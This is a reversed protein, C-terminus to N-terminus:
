FESGNKYIVISVLSFFIMFITISMACHLFFYQPLMRIVPDKDIDFIWYDNRFFLRHFITFTNNFNISFFTLLLIPIFLLLGSLYKFLSFDKFKLSYYVGISSIFISIYFLYDMKIFINKVEYFHIKGESSSPLTPMNFEINQRSTIFNILYNYNAKIDTVNFGSENPINLYNIDFYYLQKNNVTLKVSLIIFFLTFNVVLLTKSLLKLKNM